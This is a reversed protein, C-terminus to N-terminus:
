ETIGDLLQDFLDQYAEDNQWDQWDPIYYKQIDENFHFDQWMQVVQEYGVLRIPLLYGEDSFAEKTKLAHNVIAESIEDRVWDSKMSAESLILLMVDYKRIAEDIQPKLHRRVKLDKPAYWCRVGAAQLDTYLREALAQDAKNYSIFCPALQVVNGVKIEHIKYTIDTVQELSLDPNHLKSYEIDLDSLGCGRLFELPIQGQSKVLTSTSIYSPADHSVTKLGKVQRLDLHLLASDLLIARSLDVDSLATRQLKVEGLYAESLDAGNLNAEYLDTEVFYAGSLDARSLISFRLNTKVLRAGSLNSYHLNALFLNAFSFDVESLDMASLDLNNLNLGILKPREGKERAERVIGEVDERTLKDTM